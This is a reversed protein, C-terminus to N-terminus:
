EEEGKCCFTNDGKDSDDTVQNTIDTQNTICDDAEWVGGLDTCKVSCDLNDCTEFGSTSYHQALNDCTTDIRASAEGGASYGFKKEAASEVSFIETSAKVTRVQSCFAYQSSTSCALNCAQVASDVNEAGGFFNNIKSQLNGWGTAFGFVLVVLVVVALVIIVLTGITMEAGKKNKILSIM